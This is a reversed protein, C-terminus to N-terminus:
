KPIFPELLKVLRELELEDVMQVRRRKAKTKAAIDVSALLHKCLYPRMRPNRIKPFRGNSSIVSSSGRAAVAVECYYRWYPCSCHVWCKNNPKMVGNARRDGYLRIVINRIGDDGRANATVYKFDGKEDADLYAKIRTVRVTAARSRVKAPTLRALQTLFLM